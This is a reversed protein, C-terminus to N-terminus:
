RWSIRRQPPFKSLRKRSPYIRHYHRFSHLRPCNNEHDIECHNSRSAIHPTYMRYTPFTISPCTEVTYILLSILPYVYPTHPAYEDIFFKEDAFVKFPVNREEAVKQVERMEDKEETADDDTMWVGTIKPKCGNSEELKSYSDLIDRVVEAVM